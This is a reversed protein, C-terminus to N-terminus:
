RNFCADCTRLAKKEVIVQKKSCSDCCSAACLRCHHQRKFFSYELSCLQCENKSEEEKKEEEVVVPVFCHLTIKAIDGNVSSNSQWQDIVADMSSQFGLDKLEGLQNTSLTTDLRAGHSLLITIAGSFELDWKNKNDCLM